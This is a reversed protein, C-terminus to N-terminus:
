LRNYEHTISTIFYRNINAKHKCTSKPYIIFSDVIATAATRLHIEYLFKMYFNLFLFFVHQMCIDVKQPIIQMGFCGPSLTSGFSPSGVFSSGSIQATFCGAYNAGTASCWLCFREFPGQITHGGEQNAYRVLLVRVQRFYNKTTRPHWSLSNTHGPSLHGPTMCGQPDHIISGKSVPVSNQLKFM